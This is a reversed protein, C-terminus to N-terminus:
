RRIQQGRGPGVTRPGPLGKEIAAAPKPAAVVGCGSACAYQPRVEEIVHLSAPVFELLLKKALRGTQCPKQSWFRNLNWLTRWVWLRRGEFLQVPRARM